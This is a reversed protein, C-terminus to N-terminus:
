RTLVAKLVEQSYSALPKVADGYDGQYMWMLICHMRFDIPPHTKSTMPLAGRFFHLYLALYMQAIFCLHIGLYTYGVIGPSGKWPGQEKQYEAALSTGLIDANIEDKWDHFVAALGKEDLKRLGVADQPDHRGSHILNDFGRKLLDDALEGFPPVKGDNRSENIIVHGFEHGIVYTMISFFLIYHFTSQSPAMTLGTLPITQQDIFRDLVSRIQRGVEEIPLRASVEAESKSWDESTIDLGLGSVLLECIKACFMYLNTFVYVTYPPRDQVAANIEWHDVVQIDLKAPDNLYPKELRAAITTKLKQASMLLQARIYYNPDTSPAFDPNQDIFAVLDEIVKNFPDGPTVRALYSKKIDELIQRSRGPTAM